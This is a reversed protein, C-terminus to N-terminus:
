GNYISRGEEYQFRYKGCKDLLYNHLECSTVYQQHEGISRMTARTITAILVPKYMEIYKACSQKNFMMNLLTTLARYKSRSPIVYYNYREERKERYRFLWVYINRNTNVGNKM